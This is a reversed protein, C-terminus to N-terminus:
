LSNDTNLPLSLAIVKMGVSVDSSWTDSLPAHHFSTLPPAVFGPESLMELWDFGYLDGETGKLQNRKKNSYIHVDEIPQGQNKKTAPQTPTVGVPPRKDMVRNDNPSENFSKACQLSCFRREKTYYTDKVGIAGCKECVAMGEKRIPIMGLDPVKQFAIPTKLILLDVPRIKRSCFFWGYDSVSTEIENVFVFMTPSQVGDESDDSDNSDELCETNKQHSYVILFHAIHSDM